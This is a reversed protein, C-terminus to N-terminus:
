LMFDWSLPPRPAASAPAYKATVREGTRLELDVIDRNRVKVVRGAVTRGDSPGDYYCVVTQGVRPKTRRQELSTQVIDTIVNKM